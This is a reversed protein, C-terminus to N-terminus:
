NKYLGREPAQTINKKNSLIKLQNILDKIEADIAKKMRPTRSALEHYKLLYFKLDEFAKQQKEKREQENM